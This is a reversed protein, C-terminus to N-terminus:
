QFVHKLGIGHGGTRYRRAKLRSDRIKRIPFAIAPSSFGCWSTAPIRSRSSGARSRRDLDGIRAGAGHKAQICQPFSENEGPFPIPRLIECLRDLRPDAFSVLDPAPNSRFTASVNVCAWALGRALAFCRLRSALTAACARVAIPRSSTAPANASVTIIAM